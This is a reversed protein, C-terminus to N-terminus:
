VVEIDAKRDKRGMAIMLVAGVIMVFWGTWRYRILKAAAAALKKLPIFSFSSNVKFYVAVLTFLIIVLLAWGCFRLFGPRKFLAALFGLIALTFVLSALVTDIDLYNWTGVIPVHLMPSLAGVIVLISGLFGLYNKLTMM